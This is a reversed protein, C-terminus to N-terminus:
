TTTTVAKQQYKSLQAIQDRTFPIYSINSTTHRLSQFILDYSFPTVAASLGVRCLRVIGIEVHPDSIDANHGSTMM